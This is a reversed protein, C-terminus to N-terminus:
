RTYTASVLTRLSGDAGRQEVSYTAGTCGLVRAYTEASAAARRYAETSTAGRTEEADPAGCAVCEGDHSEAHTCDRLEARIDALREEAYEEASTALSAAFRVRFADHERAEEEAVTAVHALVHEAAAERTAVGAHIVQGDLGLPYWEGGDREVTGLPRPDGTLTVASAYCGLEEFRFRTPPADPGIPASHDAYAERFYARQEEGALTVSHAYSARAAEERGTWYCAHRSCPRESAECARKDEDTADDDDYHVCADYDTRFGRWCFPCAHRPAEQEADDSLTVEALHASCDDGLRDSGGCETGCAVCTRAEQEADDRECWEAYAEDQAADVALTLLAEAAAERTRLDATLAGDRTAAKWTRGDEAKRVYGLVRGDNRLRVAYSAVHEDPRVYSFPSLAMPTPRGAPHTVSM